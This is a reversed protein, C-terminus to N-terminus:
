RWCWAVMGAETIADDGCRGVRGCIEADEGGGPGLVGAYVGLTDNSVKSFGLALM